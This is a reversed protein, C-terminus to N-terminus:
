GGESARIRVVRVPRERGKVQVSEADEVSVGAASATAESLVIEEAGALSNLRQAVNVTDGVVTYERKTSGVSGATAPGSNVGIGIDFPPHGADSWARNLERQREILARACEVARAAHDAVPTPAGFVAMMADGVFKDVMGDRAIVMESMASLHENLLDRMVPAEVRQTLMTYGRIDTFIVSVEVEHPELLGEGSVARAVQPSLYQSLADTTRRGAMASAHLKRLENIASGEGRSAADALRALVGQVEHDVATAPIGLQSAMSEYSMGTAMLELLNRDPEPMGASGRGTLADAVKPDVAAEGRTVARIARLLHEPEAVREKLLYGLGASGAAFLALAYEPDDHSSLVVVGTEPYRARVELALEIGELRFDPPMRIDTIVADPRQQEVVEAAEKASGVAGVVEIEGSMQLLQKIGERVLLNDEALVVRLTGM